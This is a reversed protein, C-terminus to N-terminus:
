AVRRQEQKRWASYARGSLFWGSPHIGRRARDMVVYGHLGYMKALEDLSIPQGNLQFRPPRRGGNFWVDIRCTDAATM